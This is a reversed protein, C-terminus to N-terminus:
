KKEEKLQMSVKKPELAKIGVISYYEIRNM